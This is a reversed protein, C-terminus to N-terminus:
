QVSVVEYGHNCDEKNVSTLNNLVDKLNQNEQELVMVMNKAQNLAYSLIKVKNALEDGIYDNTSKKM